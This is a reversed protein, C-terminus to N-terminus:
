RGGQDKGWEPFPDLDLVPGALPRWKIYGTNKYSPGALPESRKHTLLARAQGQAQCGLEWLGGPALQNPLFYGTDVGGGSAM